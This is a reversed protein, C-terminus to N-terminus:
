AQMCGSFRLFAIWQGDPSWAPANADTTLEAATHGDIAKVYLNGAKIFAVQSGDPSLAPWQEVGPLTTIPRSIVAAAAQPRSAFQWWMVAVGGAAVVGLAAVIAASSPLQFPDDFMQQTGICAIQALDAPLKPLLVCGAKGVLQFLCPLCGQLRERSRRAPLNGGPTWATPEAPTGAIKDPAEGPVGQVM